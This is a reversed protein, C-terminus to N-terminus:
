WHLLYTLLGGHMTTKLDHTKLATSSLRSEFQLMKEKTWQKKLTKSVFKSRDIVEAVKGLEGARLRRLREM